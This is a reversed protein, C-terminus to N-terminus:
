EATTILHPDPECTINPLLNPITFMSLLFRRCREKLEKLEESSETDSFLFHLPHLGRLYDNDVIVTIAQLPLLLKTVFHCCFCCLKFDHVIKYRM